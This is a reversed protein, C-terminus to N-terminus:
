FTFRITKAKITKKRIRGYKKEYPMMHIICYVALMHNSCIKKEKVLREDAYVFPYLLSMICWSMLKNYGIYELIEYRGSAAGSDTDRDAM